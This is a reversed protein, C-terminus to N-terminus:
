QYNYPNNYNSVIMGLPQEYDEDLSESLEQEFEDSYKMVVELMRTILLAASVLDDHEQAKAGYSAGKSVFMKLESVLPKSNIVMKDREILSKLKSCALLKTRNTTTFGKRNKVGSTRTKNPESIYTGPFKEEGTQFIVTNVSDGGGGANNELSWYIEPEDYEHERVCNDIYKLIDMLAKAQGRPDTRNHQWEAIQIM